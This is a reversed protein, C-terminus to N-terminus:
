DGTDMEFDLSSGTGIEYDELTLHDRYPRLGQRKLMVDQAKIGMQYAAMKKFDGINDSPLCLVEGNKGLRNNVHVKILKTSTAPPSQVPKCKKQTTQHQSKSIRGDQIQSGPKQHERQKQDRNAKYSDSKSGSTSKHPQM